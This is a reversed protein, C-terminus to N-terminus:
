TKYRKNKETADDEVVFAAEPNGPTSKLFMVRDQLSPHGNLYIQEAAGEM